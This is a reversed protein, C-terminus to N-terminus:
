QQLVCGCGLYDHADAAPIERDASIHTGSWVYPKLTSTNRSISQLTPPDTTRSHTRTTTSHHVYSTGTIAKFQTVLLSDKTSLPQPIHATLQQPQRSFVQWPQKTTFIHHLSARHLPPTKQLCKRQRLMYFMVVNRWPPQEGGATSTKRGSAGCSVRLSRPQVGCGVPSARDRLLGVVRRRLGRTRPQM